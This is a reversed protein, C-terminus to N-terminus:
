CCHVWDLLVASLRNNAAHQASSGSRRFHRNASISKRHSWFPPQPHVSSNSHLQPYLILIFTVPLTAAALLQCRAFNELTAAPEPPPQLKM